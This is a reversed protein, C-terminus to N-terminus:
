GITTADQQNMSSTLSQSLLPLSLIGLSSLLLLVAAAAARLRLVHYVLLILQYLTTELKNDSNYHLMDNHATAM